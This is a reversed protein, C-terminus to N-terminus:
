SKLSRMRFTGLFEKEHEIEEASLSANLAVAELIDM